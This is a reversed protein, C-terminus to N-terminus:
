GGAGFVAQLQALYPHDPAHQRLHTLTNEAVTQTNPHDDGLSARFISLSELYLPTADAARDTARLLSALNNLRTAVAPHRNGLAERGIELAERYLPEAKDTRGITSLTLAHENLATALQKPDTGTRTLDLLAQGRHLAAPYDGMRWAFERAKYLTDFDPSLDAARAYHQAAAAWDVRSEAIEGLGYEARAMRNVALEERATIETFIAEAQDTQGQRLATIASQLREAGLENGERILRAELDALRKREAEFAGEPNNIQATLEDIRAQLQAREESDARDLESIIDTRLERRIRIFEPVTLRTQGDAFTITAEVKAPAPTVWLWKVLRVLGWLIGWVFLVLAAVAALAQLLNAEKQFFDLWDLIM